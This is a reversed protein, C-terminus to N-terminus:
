KVKARYKCLIVNETRGKGGCSKDGDRQKENKKNWGLEVRMSLYYLVMESNRWRPDTKDM